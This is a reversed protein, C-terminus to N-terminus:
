GPSREGSRNASRRAGSLRLAPALDNHNAALAHLDDVDVGMADHGFDRVDELSGVDLALERGVLNQSGFAHGGHILAPYVKLRQADILIPPIVRVAVERRADDSHMVFADRFPDFAM